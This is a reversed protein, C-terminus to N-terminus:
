CLALQPFSIRQCVTRNTMKNRLLQNVPHRKKGLSKWQHLSQWPMPLHEQSQTLLTLLSTEGHSKKKHRLRKINLHMLRENMMQKMAFDPFVNFCVMISESFHNIRSCIHCIEDQTQSFEAQTVLQEPLVKWNDSKFTLRKSNIWFGRNQNLM